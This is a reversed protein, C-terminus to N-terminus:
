KNQYKKLEAINQIKYCHTDQGCFRDLNQRTLELSFDECCDWILKPNSDCDVGIAHNNAYNGDCLVCIYKGTGCLHSDLIPFPNGGKNKVKKLQYNSQCDILLSTLAKTVRHKKKTLCFCGNM